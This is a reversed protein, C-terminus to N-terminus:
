LGRTQYELGGKGGIDPAAEMSMAGCSYWSEAAVSAKERARQSGGGRSVSLNVICTYPPPPPLSPLAPPPPPSLEVGNEWRKKKNLQLPSKLSREAAM